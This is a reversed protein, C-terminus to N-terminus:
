DESDDAAKPADAESAGSKMVRWLFYGATATIGTWSAILFCWASLTM